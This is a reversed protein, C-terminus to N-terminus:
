AGFNARSPATRSSTFARMPNAVSLSISSMRRRCASFSKKDSNFRRSTGISEMPLTSHAPCSAIFDFSIAMRHLSNGSRTSELLVEGGRAGYAFRAMAAASPRREPHYRAAGDLAVAPVAGSPVLDVYAAPKPPERPDGRLHVRVTEYRLGKQELAFWVKHCHPCWANADRYFVIRM